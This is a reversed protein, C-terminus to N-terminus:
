PLPKLSEFRGVICRPKTEGNIMKWAGTENQWILNKSWIKRKHKECKELEMKSGKKRTSQRKKNEGANKAYKPIHTKKQMGANEIQQYNCRHHAIFGLFTCCPSM